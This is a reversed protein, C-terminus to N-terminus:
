AWASTSYDFKSSMKASTADHDSISFADNDDDEENDGVSFDMDDLNESTAVSFVESDDEQFRQQLTTLSGDVDANELQRIKEEVERLKRAESEQSMELDDLEDFEEEYEEVENDEDNTVDEEDEEDQNPHKDTFAAKSNLRLPSVVDDIDDFDEVISDEVVHEGESDSDSDYTTPDHLKGPSTRPSATFLKKADQNDNLIDDISMNLEDVNTDLDRNSRSVTLNSVSRVNVTSLPPLDKSESLESTIKEIPLYETNPYIQPSIGFEEEDLNDKKFSLKDDISNPSLKQQAQLPSPSSPYKEDSIPSLPKLSKM